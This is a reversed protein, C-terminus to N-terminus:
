LSVAVMGRKLSVLVVVGRAAATPGGEGFLDELIHRREGPEDPPTHNYRFELRRARARAAVLEPDDPRYLEGAIM